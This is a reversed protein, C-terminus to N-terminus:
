CRWGSLSRPAPASSVSPGPSTRRGLSQGILISAATGIGMVMAVVFAIVANGNAAAALATDGLMRGVWMANVSSGLTQLLNGSLIPLFLAFLTGAIPGDTMRAPAPRAAPEGPM